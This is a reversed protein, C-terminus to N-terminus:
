FAAPANRNRQRRRAACGIGLPCLLQTRLHEGTKRLGLREAVQQLEVIRFSLVESRLQMADSGGPQSAM